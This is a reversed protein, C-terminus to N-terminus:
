IYNNTFSTSKVVREQVFVFIGFTFVIPFLVCAFFRGNLEETHEKTYGALLTGEISVELHTECGGVQNCYRQILEYKAAFVHVTSHM